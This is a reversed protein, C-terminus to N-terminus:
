HGLRQYKWGNEGDHCFDHSEPMKSFLIRDSILTEHGQYFEIKDPVVRYGRVFDPRPIPKGEYEETVRRLREMLVDRSEIAESQTESVLFALQSQRARQAFAEDVEPSPMSEVRGEIRVSRNLPLWFLVLSAFPVAELESAKASTASTYFAFGKESFHQLLVIRSAPRGNKKVTSLTMAHSLPVKAKKRADNMWHEFLTIPNKSVLTEELLEKGTSSCNTNMRLFLHKQLCGTFLRSFGLRKFYGLMGAICIFCHM